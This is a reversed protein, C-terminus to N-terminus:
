NFLDGTGGDQPPRDASKPKAKVSRPVTVRPPLPAPLGELPGHWQRLYTQAEVVSCTLWEAYNEPDLIVVMRKEENPKHFRNMFPHDDANVTLMAMGFMERGDPHTWSRYIGAIGM